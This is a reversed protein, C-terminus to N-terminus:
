DSLGWKEALEDMEGTDEMREIENSFVSAIGTEGVPFLISYGVGFLGEDLITFRDQFYNLALQRPLIFADIAGSNLDNRASEYDYYRFLEKFSVGADDAYNEMTAVNIETNFLGVSRGNLSSIGKVSSGEKVVIVAQDTYYPDTVAFTSVKDTGAVIFGAAFDVQDYKVAAGANESWLTSYEIDIDDGFVNRILAETVDRDFGTINGNEDESGFAPVDCRIGVTIDEKGALYSTRVNGLDIFYRILFIVVIVAAAAAAIKLVLGINFKKKRPELELSYRKQRVDM